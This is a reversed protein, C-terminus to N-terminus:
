PKNVNESFEFLSNYSNIDPCLSDNESKKLYVAVCGARQGAEIDRISDGAMFSKSMDINFDKQAKLLLGPAPKRCDCRIKLEKIEGAFGGDPHHPCFYIADVYAGKEGLLTEMRNHIEALTEFSCEGRAIVPQNTVVIVLYGASNFKSIAEAAGPILEMDKPDTIYGKHINITGDRDLFIAKQLNKSYKAEVLGSKIDNETAKLREPTGMDKVYEACKYSYIRGTKIAPKIIDKDFDAKGSFDYLRLLEPSVIQIGANCLNSYAFPKNDKPILETVCEGECVSLLTSDYPHNNPHTLLTALAKKGKHFKVMEELCFNFILDGNCLLFDEKLNLHFLAGATGLPETEKYYSISVGLSSGDKFYEEIKESLHGVIFVFEKVGEKKLMEVQRELVPKGCILTMPKPIYKNVSELRKGLGGALIVAKLDAM